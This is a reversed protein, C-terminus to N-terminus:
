DYMGGSGNIPLGDGLVHSTGTHHCPHRQHDRDGFLRRRHGSASASELCALRRLIRKRCRSDGVALIAGRNKHPQRRPNNAHLHVHVLLFHRSEYLRLLDHASFHRVLAGELHHVASNSIQFNKNGLLHLSRLPPDVSHPHRDRLSQEM